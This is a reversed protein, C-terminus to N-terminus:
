FPIDDEGVSANTIGAPCSVDPTTSELDAIRCQILSNMDDVYDRLVLAAFRYSATAKRSKLIADMHVADVPYGAYTGLTDTSRRIAALTVSPVRNNSMDELFTCLLSNAEAIEQQHQTPDWVQGLHEELPSPFTM